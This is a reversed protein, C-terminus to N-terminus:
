YCLLPPTLMKRLVQELSAKINTVAHVFSLFLEFDVTGSRDYDLLEFM